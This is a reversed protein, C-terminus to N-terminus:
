GMGWELAYPQRILAHGILHFAPITPANDHPDADLPFADM